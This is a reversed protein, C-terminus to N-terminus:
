QPAASTPIPAPSPAPNETTIVLEVRRNSARNQSSTNDSVPKTDAYGIARLRDAPLGLAVLERVVMAARAASLEWNSPYQLTSIPINDTHGEISIIGGQAATQALITSLRQVLGKGGDELLAKGSSFLIRDSIRVTVSKAGSIVEVQGALNSQQVMQQLQDALKNQTETAAQQEPTQEPPQKTATTEPKVGPKIEPNVESQPPTAQTNPGTYEEGSPAPDTTAGNANPDDYQSIVDDQNAPVGGKALTIGRGDFPSAPGSIEYQADPKLGKSESPSKIAVTTLIVFFAMLLTVMDAYSVAWDNEGLDDEEPHNENLSSRQQLRNRQQNLNEPEHNGFGMVYGGHGSYGRGDHTGFAGSPAAAPGYGSAPYPPKTQV